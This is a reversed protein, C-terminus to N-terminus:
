EGWQFGDMLAWKVEADHDMQPDEWDAHHLHRNIRRAIWRKESPLLWTAFVPKEGMANIRVGYVLDELLRFSAVLTAKTRLGLRYEKQMRAGFLRHEVVLLTPELMVITSGFRAFIWGGAMPAMCVWVFGLVALDSLSGAGGAEFADWTFFGLLGVGILLCGGFGRLMDNCGPLVHIVLRDGDRREELRDSVPDDEIDDYRSNCRGDEEVYERASGPTVADVDILKNCTPCEIQKPSGMFFSSLLEAGCGPCRHNSM